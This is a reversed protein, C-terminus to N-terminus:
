QVKLQSIKPQVTKPGKKPPEGDPRVGQVEEDLPEDKQFKLVDVMRRM